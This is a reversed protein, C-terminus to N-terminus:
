EKMNALKNNLTLLAKRVGREATSYDCVEDKVYVFAADVGKGKPLASIDFLHKNLRYAEITLRRIRNRKVAHRIRRKPISILVSIPHSSYLNNELFVVRFPYAMFSGGKTFLAEVRTDGTVREAKTFTFRQKDNM